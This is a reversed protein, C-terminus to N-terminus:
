PTLLDFLGGLAEEIVEALPGLDEFGPLGGDDDGDDGDDGGGPAGPELASVFQARVAGAPVETTHIDVYYEEPADEIDALSFGVGQDVGADTTVGTEQPIAHCGSSARQGGDAEGDANVPNRFLVKPPGVEGAEGEHIHTATHAPSQYGGELGGALIQYCVVENDSDFALAFVAGAGDQGADPNAAEAQDPDALLLWTSTVDGAAITPPGDPLQGRIAGAPFDVSHLNLYYDEPDDLIESVDFAGADVTASLEGDGAELEDGTALLVVVPGNEDRDGEHIHFGPSGAFAGEVETYDVEFSVTNAAEDITVTASGEAGNQGADGSDGTAFTDATGFPEGEATSVEDFWSLEVEFEEVRDGDEREALGEAEVYDYARMIFSAMADRFVARAGEYNGDTNGQVIGVGALARVNDNHAPDFPEDGFIPGGVFPPPQTAPRAQGDDIVSVALRIFTAMQQRTVSARPRYTGDTFGQVVGAEVLKGVNDVHPPRITDADDFEDPDGEPLDQGTADEIFRVVFSAMQDRAVEIRPGYGGDARGETLGYAFMCEINAEHASGEIDEFPSTESGDCVEDTGRDFPPDPDDGTIQASSALPITALVMAGAASVGLTRRVSGRSRTLPRM